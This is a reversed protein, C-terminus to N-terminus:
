TYLFTSITVAILASVSRQYMESNLLMAEKPNSIFGCEILVGTTNTHEMLYVKDAHKAKRKSGPNLYGVFNKQLNNALAEAEGKANYFVQAGNYFSDSFTNQHISILVANDTENVIRVREKLDSMKRASITSGTTYISRDTTRIMKTQIGLLHLMDELRLSIQLNTQSELVGTCSTAGGDEGGHGADIIVCFRDPIPATQHFTTVAHNTAVTILVFAILAVGYIPILKKMSLVGYLGYPTNYFFM